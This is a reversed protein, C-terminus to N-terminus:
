FEIDISPDLKIDQHNTLSWSGELAYQQTLYAFLAFLLLISLSSQPKKM